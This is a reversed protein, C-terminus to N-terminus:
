RSKYYNVQRERAEAEEKTNYEGLRKKGNKSYLIWKGNRHVIHATIALGHPGDGASVDVNPATIKEGNPTSAPKPPAVIPPASLVPCAVGFDKAIASVYAQDVVIGADHAQKLALWFATTQKAKTDQVRIEDENPLCHIRKPALSSDGFNMATWPEILGEQLGTELAKIDGRLLTASIGFLATIDVGPAGGQAGLTGDTGLYIRAAAKEANNILESWVQWATSSNILMETKSGAPRIGAPSDASGIAQLLTLLSAAEPTLSGDANQLAVGEPLEGIVKANGHAVSGKAWDRAAFAHRAWILAAPMIAGRRHPNIEHRAFIIWRGDGHIIPVEFGGVFGFRPDNIPVDGERISNPDCRAKYCRVVQDWRVYEIPWYRIQTDIRTGDARPTAVVVAFAVGHQVLCDRIDTLTQENLGVGDVGFLGDAENCIAEARSGPKAPELRVPISSQPEIRNKRAVFLADDTLMAESMRSPLIFQGVTQEDRAFFIDNLAWSYFALQSDRPKRLEGELRAINFESGRRIRKARKSPAGMGPITLVVRRYANM